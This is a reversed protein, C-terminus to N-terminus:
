TSEAVAHLIRLLAEDVNPALEPPTDGIRVLVVDLAPVVLIRQTRHGQAAFTGYPDDHVWWHAGHREAGSAPTVTRAHDVWGEPLLRAGDWTGDRLYLLGFRALDTATAFVYSSAIWTGAADFRPLATRMGLPEFLREALYRRYGAEGGGVAEAVRRSLVNTTGSSYEFTSGPEHALPQHAAYAGMDAKGHGFLMAQVDSSTSGVLYGESWSLGTSMRLAHEVTIASRPDHESWEPAAVPEDLTLRGDHVLLGVAAHLVSKAVSWSRLTQEPGHAEDSAQRHVQGGRVLVLSWTEGFHTPQHL